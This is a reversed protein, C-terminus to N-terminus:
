RRRDSTGTANLLGAGIAGAQPGLEAAALQVAPRHGAGVLLSGLEEEAPGLLLEGAEVLGGGVVVVTPDLVAVLNAVGVALWGAVEALVAIAGVDGAVAASTVHEGQVAEPDGGVRDVVAPLSGARAADRGMRGLGSGSAYREWCGRRGCPCPPGDREVVMHGVEGAFGHAGSVLRGGSIVGGGIGTGLTVLVVDDHGRAAGLHREGWAACTADNDCVVAVGLRETLPGAVALDVVGPLNPAFRLVGDRDVLGPLGVGVQEPQEGVSAVMEGVLSEIATLLEAGAAPTPTQVTSVVQPPEDDDGQMAVGLCKTGGVDVGVRVATM